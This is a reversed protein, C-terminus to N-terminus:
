LIQVICIKQFIVDFDIYNCLVANGNEKREFVTSGYYFQLTCHVTTGTAVWSNQNSPTVDSLIEYMLEVWTRYQLPMALIETPPFM